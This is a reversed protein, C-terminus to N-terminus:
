ARGRSFSDKLGLKTVVQTEPNLRIPASGEADQLEDFRDHAIREDPDALWFRKLM